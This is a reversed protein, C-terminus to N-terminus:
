PTVTLHLPAQHFYLEDPNSHLGYGFFFDVEIESIGLSAPVLNEFALFEEVATLTKNIAPIFVGPITISDVFNGQENVFLIQEDTFAAIVLFGAEGVHAPDIDIRASIDLSANSSFQNAFSVGNDSSICGSFSANVPTGNLSTNLGLPNIGISDLTANIRYDGSIGCESKIPTDFTNALLFYDGPQLFQTLSSDCANSANNDFGVIQLNEDAILLVSDLTSSTMNLSLTAPNTLAFRYVDIPSTDSSGPLLVDVTCDNEGLANDISGFTLEAVACNIVGDYLAEAGAIDDAQLRDLNSITPAMIAANTTEHDLGIVHGLEHLAVRRFDIGPFGFQGFNGDYINFNTNQNMIINAESINPAGLITSSFRRVAVGLTSEQFESGCFTFGFDVSNLGDDICPDRHEERLIFNLSTEDNWDDMAAIFAANWPIGTPSIGAMDVFFEIEGTPWKSGNIEFAHAPLSFTAILLSCLFIKQTHPM